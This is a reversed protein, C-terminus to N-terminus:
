GDYVMTFPVQYYCNDFTYYINGEAGSQDPNFEGEGTQWKLTIDQCSFSLGDSECQM